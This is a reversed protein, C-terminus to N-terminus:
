SHKANQPFKMTNHKRKHKYSRNPRVPVVASHLRLVIHRLIKNGKRKSPEMLLEVVHKRLEMIVAKISLKYEYKNQPNNHMPEIESKVDYAVVSSLNYLFVTAYCDQLVSIETNGTFNEIELVNKLTNYGTEIGWRKNYIEKFTDVDFDSNFINTLLHETDHNLEFSIARFTIKRTAKKFKYDVVCDSGTIKMGRAFDPSYRIVYKFGSADLLELLESSPYGRDFLLITESPEVANLRELMTAAHKRENDKCSGFCVDVLVNNLVDYVTSCLLQVQPAGQSVQADFVEMLENTCPLNLRTGDIAMINFNNYKNLPINKYYFNVTDYFLEQIAEPRIYQRRKSFAQKSYTETERGVEDLFTHIGTQLGTKLGKIICIVTEPFNMKSNRTFSSACNRGTIKYEYSYLKEHITQLLPYVFMM